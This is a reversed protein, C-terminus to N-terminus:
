ETPEGTPEGGGATGDGTGTDTTTDGGGTGTTDTGTGTDDGGTDNESIASLAQDVNDSMTTRAQDILDAAQSEEVAAAELATQVATAVLGPVGEIFTRISALKGQSDAVEATLDDIATQLKDNMAHIRGLIILGVVGVVVLGLLNM